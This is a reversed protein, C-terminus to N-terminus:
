GTQRAEARESSPQTSPLKNPKGRVIRQPFEQQIKRLDECILALDGNFKRTHAMRNERIEEVNKDTM